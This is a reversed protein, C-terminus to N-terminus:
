LLNYKPTGQCYPPKFHQGCGKPCRGSEYGCTANDRCHGCRSLCNTTSNYFGQKCVSVISVIMTVFYVEVYEDYM